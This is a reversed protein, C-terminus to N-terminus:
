PGALTNFQVSTCFLSNTMMRRRAIRPRAKRVSLTDREPCLFHRKRDSKTAKEFPETESAVKFDRTLDFGTALLSMQGKALDFPRRRRVGPTHRRAPVREEHDTNDLSNM